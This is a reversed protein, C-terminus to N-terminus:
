RLQDVHIDPPVLSKVYAKGTFTNFHANSQVVLDGRELIVHRKIGPARSALAAADAYAQAHGGFLAPLDPKFHSAWVVAFVVGGPTMYERVVSGDPAVIEHVPISSPNSTTGAAPAAMVRRHVGKIRDRDALVSSEDGGLSAHACTAGMGTLGVGIWGISAAVWRTILRRVFQPRTM